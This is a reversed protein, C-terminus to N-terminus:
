CKIKKPKPATPEPVLEQLHDFQKRHRYVYSSEVKRRCSFKRPHCLDEYGHCYSLYRLMMDSKLRAVKKCVCM